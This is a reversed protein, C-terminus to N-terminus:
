SEGLPHRNTKVESGKASRVWNSWFAKKTTRPTGDFRFRRPQMKIFHRVGGRIGPGALHGGGGGKIDEGKSLSLGASYTLEPTLVRRFPRTWRSSTDTILRETYGDM